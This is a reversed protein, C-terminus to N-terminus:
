FRYEFKFRARNETYSNDSEVADSLDINEAEFSVNFNRQVKWKFGAKLSRKTNDIDNGQYAGTLPDILPYIDSSKEGSLLNLAIYTTLKRDLFYYNVRSNIITYITETSTKPANVSRGYGLDLSFPYPFTISTSLILSNNDFNYDDNSNDAYSMLMGNVNFNAQWNDARYQYGSAFTITNTANDTAIVEFTSSSDTDEYETSDRVGERSIMRYGLNFTPWKPLMLGLGANFTNNKTSVQKSNYLNDDKTEGGLNITVANNLIRTRTDVKIADIDSQISPNGLSNYSDPVRRYNVRLNTPIYPLPTRIDAYFAPQIAGFPQLSNNLTFDLNNKMFKDIDLILKNSESIAIGAEQDAYIDEIDSRNGYQNDVLLSLATEFSIFTKRFLRFDLTSSMVINDKPSGLKNYVSSTDSSWRSFYDDWTTDGPTVGHDILYFALGISDYDAFEYGGIAILDQRFELSDRTDDKFRLVNFGLEATNLFGEGNRPATFSMRTGFANRQYSPSGIDYQYIYTTDIPTILTEVLDSDGEAITYPSILNKSEGYFASLGFFGYKFDGTIGRVRTGKITLESFRPNADGITLTLPRTTFKLRFRDLTQRREAETRANEDFYFNYFVEAETKLWGMDAIAKVRPKNHDIPRNRPQEKGAYKDYRTEWSTQVNYKIKSAKEPKFEEVKFDFSRKPTMNGAQDRVSIEISHSGVSFDKVPFYTILDQTIQANNTVDDGDVFLRISGPVTDDDPDFLSIVILEPGKPISSGPEPSLLVIDTPRGEGRPAISYEYPNIEPNIEPATRFAGSTNEAYIYYELTGTALFEAPIEAVYFEYELYFPIFDFEAMSPDRYYLVVQSINGEDTVIAQFKLPEGPVYDGIEVHLITPPIGQANASITGLVLLTILAFLAKSFLHNHHM